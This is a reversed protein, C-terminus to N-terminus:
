KWFYEKRYVPKSVGKEDFVYHDIINESAIAGSTEVISKPVYEYVKSDRSKRVLVRVGNDSL